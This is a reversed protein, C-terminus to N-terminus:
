ASCGCRIAALSTLPSRYQITQGAGAVADGATFVVSSQLYNNTSSGVIVQSTAAPAAKGVLVSPTNSNFALNSTPVAVFQGNTWFRKFWVFSPDLSRRFTVYSM